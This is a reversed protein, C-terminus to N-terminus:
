PRCYRPQNHGPHRLSPAADHILVYDPPTPSLAELGCLVSDQRRAGGHVPPPIDLDALCDTYLDHHDPHVVVQIAGVLPHTAFLRVAQRLASEGTALRRYQKPIGGGARLGQGAAVIVAATRLTMAVYPRPCRTGSM